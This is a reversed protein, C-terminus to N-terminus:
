ILKLMEPIIYKVIDYEPESSITISIENNVIYYNIQIPFCAIDCKLNYKFLELKKLNDLKIKNIQIFDPPYLNKFQQRNLYAFIFSIMYKQCLTSKSFTDIVDFINELNLENIYELPLIYKIDDNFLVLKNKFFKTLLM